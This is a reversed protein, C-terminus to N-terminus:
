PGSRRRDQLVYLKEGRSVHRVARRAPWARLDNARSKDVTGERSYLIPRLQVAAAKVVKMTMERVPAIM